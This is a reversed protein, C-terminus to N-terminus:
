EGLPPLTPMPKAIGAPLPAPRDHRLERRRGFYCRPQSPTSTWSRSAFAASLRPRLIRLAREDRGDRGVAGGRLRADLGTVDNSGEVALGDIV